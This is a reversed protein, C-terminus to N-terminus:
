FINIKNRFSTKINQKIITILTFKMFRLHVLSFLFLTFRFNRGSNTVSDLTLTCERLHSVPYASTECLPIM